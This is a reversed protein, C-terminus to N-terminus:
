RALARGPRTSACGRRNKRGGAGPDPILRRLFGPQLTPPHAFMDRHSIEECPNGSPGPFEAQRGVLRTLVEHSYCRYHPSRDVETKRRALEPEPLLQRDGRRCRVSSGNRCATEDIERSSPGEIGPPPAAEDFKGSRHRGRIAGPIRDCPHEALRARHTIQDGM